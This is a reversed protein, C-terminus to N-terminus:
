DHPMDPPPYVAFRGPDWADPGSPRYDAHPIALRWAENIASLYRSALETDERLEVHGAGKWHGDGTFHNFLVAADDLVWLDVPPLLLGAAQRRPLWRVDEGAHVNSATTDYEFAIYASVPESVVRLRRVAVGRATTDTILKLWPRDVLRTTFEGWDRRLWAQFWPDDPTYFDRLELHVAGASCGGFLEAFDVAGDATIADTRDRGEGEGSLTGM